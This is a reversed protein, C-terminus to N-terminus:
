ADPDVGLERLKAALKEARFHEAEKLQKEQEARQKEQEARHKEQDARKREKEARRKEERAERATEKQLLGFEVFTLFRSGGPYLIEVDDPMAFTIGLRPSKFGEMSSVEVLGKPGRVFGELSFRDPDLLYFEEAGHKEYFLRKRDMEDLTNNPSLVEFVVQPFIGGEKWVKYSGRYGKKRGFAVYVDPAACIAPKGEVPYILNDGAVFVNPDNAFLLDLNGKITAIWDWQLTNDAMPMGDCDPYEIEPESIQPSM